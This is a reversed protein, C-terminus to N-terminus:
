SLPFCIPLACFISYIMPATVPRSQPASTAQSFERILLFAISFFLVLIQIPNVASDALLGEVAEGIPMWGGVLLILAGLLPAAWYIRVSPHRPHLRHEFLALGMTFLVTLVCICVVATM